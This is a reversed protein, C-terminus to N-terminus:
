AAQGYPDDALRADLDQQSINATLIVGGIRPKRPGSALFAGDAYNVYLWDQHDPLAENIEALDATYTLTVIHM